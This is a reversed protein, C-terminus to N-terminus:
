RANTTIIGSVRLSRIPPRPTDSFGLVLLFYSSWSHLKAYLAPEKSRSVYIGMEDNNQQSFEYLNMSTIIAADESM